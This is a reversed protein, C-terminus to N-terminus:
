SIWHNTKSQAQIIDKVASFFIYFCKKVYVISTLNESLWSEQIKIYELNKKLQHLDQRLKWINKTLFQRKM